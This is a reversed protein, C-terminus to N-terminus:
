KKKKKDKAKSKKKSKTNSLNKMMQLSNEDEIMM